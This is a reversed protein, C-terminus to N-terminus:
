KLEIRQKQSAHMDCIQQSQEITPLKIFDTVKANLERPKATSSSLLSSSPQFFTNAFSIQWPLSVVGSLTNAINSTKLAPKWKSNQAIFYYNNTSTQSIWKAVDSLM